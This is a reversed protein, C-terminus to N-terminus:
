AECFLYLVSFERISRERRARAKLQAVVAAAAVLPFPINVLVNRPKIPILKIGERFGLPATDDSPSLGTQM